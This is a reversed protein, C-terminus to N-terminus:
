FSPDCPHDPRAPPQQCRLPMSAAAGPTLACEARQASEAPRDVGPRVCDGTQSCHRGAPLRGHIGRRLPRHVGPAQPRRRQRLLRGPHCQLIRRQHGALCGRGLSHKNVAARRLCGKGSFHPLVWRTPRRPLGAWPSRTSAPSPPSGALRSSACWALLASMWSPCRGMRIACKAQASLLVNMVLANPECDTYDGM